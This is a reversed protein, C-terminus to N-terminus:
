KRARNERAELLNCPIAVNIKTTRQFKKHTRYTVFRLLTWKRHDRSSASLLRYACGTMCQYTRWHFSAENIKEGTQLTLTQQFFFCIQTQLRNGIFFLLSRTLVRDKVLYTVWEILRIIFSSVGGLGVRKSFKSNENQHLYCLVNGDVGAANEYPKRRNVSFREFGTKIHSEADVIYVFANESTKWAKADNNASTKTQIQGNVVKIFPSWMLM